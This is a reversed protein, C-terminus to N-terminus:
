RFARALRFFILLDCRDVFREGAPLLLSVAYFIGAFQGFRCDVVHAEDAIKRCTSIPMIEVPGSRSAV